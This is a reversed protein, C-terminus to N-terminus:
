MWAYLVCYKWYQYLMFMNRLIESHHRLKLLNCGLFLNSWSLTTRMWRSFLRLSAMSKSIARRLTQTSRVKHAWFACGCFGVFDICFWYLDDHNSRGSLDKWICQFFCFSASVPQCRCNKNDMTWEFKPPSRLYSFGNSQPIGASKLLRASAAGEPLLWPLLSRPPNCQWKPIGQEDKGVRQCKETYNRCTEVLPRILNTSSDIQHYKCQHNICTRKPADATFWMTWTPMAPTGGKSQCPSWPMELELACLVINSVLFWWFDPPIVNNQQCRNSDFFLLISQSRGPTQKKQKKQTKDVFFFFFQLGLSGLSEPTAKLSSWLM